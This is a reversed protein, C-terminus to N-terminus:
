LKSEMNLKCWDNKQCNDKSTWFSKPKKGLFWSSYEKSGPFSQVLLFAIKLEFTNLDDNFDSSHGLNHKLFVTTVNGFSEGIDTCRTKTQGMEMRENVLKEFILENRNEDEIKVSIETSEHKNQLSSSFLDTGIGLKICHAEELINNHLIVRSVSFFHLM